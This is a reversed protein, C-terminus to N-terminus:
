AFHKIMLNERGGWGNLFTGEKTYGNREYFPIRKNSCGLFIGKKKWRKLHKESHKLLNSGIGRGRHDPHIAIWCILLYNQNLEDSVKEENDEGKIGMFGILKGKNEIVFMRKKKKTNIYRNFKQIAWKKDRDNAEKVFPIWQKRDKKNLERIKM